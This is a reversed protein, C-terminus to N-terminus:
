KWFRVAVHDKRRSLTFGEALVGEAIGPMHAAGWPVVLHDSKPLHERLVVLLHQNRKELLDAFLEDRMTPTTPEQLIPLTRPTVGESHILLVKKLMDISSKSFERVDVDAAVTEGRPKFEKQQESLGLGESMKGYGPKTSLLGEEDSVGEMLVVGADPFSAGLQHYFGADAVHAMPALVVTKGDSRTYEREQLVLGEMRLKVFGDTFHSAALSACAVLYVLCLPLAIGLNVIVFGVTHRWSFMRESLFADGARRMKWWVVGGAVCQILSILWLIATEHKHFYIMAPLSALTALPAYLALPLFCRKPISPFLALMGYVALMAPVLLLVLLVRLGSLWSSGTIWLATDDMLAVAAQILFLVLFGKLLMAIVPHAPPPPSAM